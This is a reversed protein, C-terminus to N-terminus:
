GEYLKERGEVEGCHDVQNDGCLKGMVGVIIIGM